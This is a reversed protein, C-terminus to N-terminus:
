NDLAGQNIWNLIVTKDYDPLAGSPPMMSLQGILHLYINSQEANATDVYSASFGSNLLQDYSVSTQLDLKSHTEDHCSICNSNFIPQVHTTYYVTDAEELPLSSETLLPGTDKNCSQLLLIFVLISSIILPLKM